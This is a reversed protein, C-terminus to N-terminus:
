KDPGMLTSPRKTSISTLESRGSSKEMRSVSVLNLMATCPASETLNSKRFSEYSIIARLQCRLQELVKARWGAAGTNSSLWIVRVWISSRNEYSIIACLQCRLLELVKARWGADGMSTCTSYHNDDYSISGAVRTWIRSSVSQIECLM